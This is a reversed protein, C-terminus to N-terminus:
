HAFNAWPHTTATTDPASNGSVAATGGATLDIIPGYRNGAAIDFNTTNGSADNRIVLNGAADVDIGRDNNSVSNGEIRNDDLMAHIGAGDATQYGNEHSSCGTVVCDLGVQIGDGSNQGAICGSVLCSNGAQIGDGAGEYAACDSVVGSSIFIGVVGSKRAASGTISAGRGASIGYSGSERAMCDSIAGSDGCLIGSALNKYASCGIITGDQAADIGAGFNNDAECARIVASFGQCSIGDAGNGSAVCSEVLANSGCLVGAGGNDIAHVDRVHHNAGYVINGLYIGAGGWDRVIGNFVRINNLPTTDWSIGDLSGAVGRVTFGRLDITVDAAGIEIGHKSAVGTLDGTLYYSGPQTIKFISNADGPTTAANIPIRPEVQELTKMTGVISGPPPNTNGALSAAGLVGLVGCWVGVQSARLVM